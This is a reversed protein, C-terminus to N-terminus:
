IQVMEHVKRLADEFKQQKEPLPDDKRVPYLHRPRLIDLVELAQRRKYHMHSIDHKESKEPLLSHPFGYRWEVLYNYGRSKNNEGLLKDIYDLCNPAINKLRTTVNSTVLKEFFGRAKTLMYTESYIKKRSKGYENNILLKVSDEAYGRATHMNKRGNSQLTNKRSIQSFHPESIKTYVVRQLDRLRAQRALHFQEKDMGAAPLPDEPMMTLRLLDEISSPNKTNELILKIMCSVIDKYSICTKPLSRELDDSMQGGADMVDREHKNGPFCIVPIEIEQEGFEPAGRVIRRYVQACEWGKDIYEQADTQSSCLYYEVGDRGRISPNFVAVLPEFESDPKFLRESLLHEFHDSDEKRFAYDRHQSTLRALVFLEFMTWAEFRVREIDDYLSDYFGDCMLSLLYKLQIPDYEFGFEPVLLDHLELEKGITSNKGYAMELLREYFGYAKAMASDLDDKVEQFNKDMYNFLMSLVYRETEESLDMVKYSTRWRTNESSLPSYDPNMFTNLDLVREGANDGKRVGISPSDLLHFYVELKPLLRTQDLKSRIDRFAAALDAPLISNGIEKDFDSVMNELSLGPIDRVCHDLISIVDQDAPLRICPQQVDCFLQMILKEFEDVLAGIQHKSVLVLSDGIDARLERVMDQSEPHTEEPFFLPLVSVFDVVHEIRERLTNIFMFLAMHQESREMLGLNHNVLMSEVAKLWENFWKRPLVVLDEKLSLNNRGGEVLEKKLLTECHESQQTYLTM